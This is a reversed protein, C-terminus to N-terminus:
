DGAFFKVFANFGGFHKPPEILSRGDLVASGRFWMIATVTGLYEVNEVVGFTIQYLM